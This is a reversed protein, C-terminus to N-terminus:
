QIGMQYVNKLWQNRGENLVQEIVFRLVALIHVLGDRRFDYWQRPRDALDKVGQAFNTPLFHDGLEQVIVRM